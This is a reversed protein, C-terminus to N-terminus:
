EYRCDALFERRADSKVNVNDGFVGSGAFTITDCNGDQIGRAKVCFHQAKIYVAVDETKAVYKITEMIQQTLREQVQPRKSFFEVIRNLKSLGLVHKNPVYAVCATGVINQFHHECTSLVSIGRELVYSGNYKMKNEVATCKPFKNYNLGWFIENVYMKAVRNPTDCLSDDKLDLGLISMIATINTSIAEVALTPNNKILHGSLVPTEIGLKLLNAHVQEGLVPDCKHEPHSM